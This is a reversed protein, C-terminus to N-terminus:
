RSAPGTKKVDTDLPEEEADEPPIFRFLSDPLYPSFEWDYLWAVYQPSGPETKYTIVVKLPVPDWNGAIWIQWDIFEQTFALHHAQQGRVSHIGLYIGSQVNEILISYPNSYVLDALPASIDLREAAYDLASDITDPVPVTRYSQFDEDLLVIREGDFWFQENGLDGSSEAHIRDPRRIAVRSSAEFQRKVGDEDVEDFAEDIRFTFREAHSLYDSMLRLYTNASPAVSENAGTEGSDPEAASLPIALCAILIM